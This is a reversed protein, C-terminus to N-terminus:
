FACSHIRANPHKLVPALFEVTGTKPVDLWWPQGASHALALQMYSKKVKMNRLRKLATRASQRPRAVAPTAHIFHLEYAEDEAHAIQRERFCLVFEIRWSYIKFEVVRLCCLPQVMLDEAEVVVGLYRM